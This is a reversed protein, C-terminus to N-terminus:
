HQIVTVTVQQLVQLALELLLVWGPHALELISLWGAPCASVQNGLRGHSQQYKECSETEQEARRHCRQKETAGGYNDRM